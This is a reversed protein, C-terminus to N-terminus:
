GRETPYSCVAQWLCRGCRPTKRCATICHELILWHYRGYLRADRPLGGEFFRRIAADDAFGYGLRALLRRTYADIIFSPQYFAYVLIVDATEAGVGRLALLEERLQPLPLKQVQRSDFRYSGFWAVLGQIARAKAKQFGCPAILEELEGTSLSGIYQPTLRSGLPMCTKQVNGWATNQVLVSQFLVTFPDESWWPPEGYATLLAQYLAEASFM